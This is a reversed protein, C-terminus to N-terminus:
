LIMIHTPGLMGDEKQDVLFNGSGSEPNMGQRDAHGALRVRGCKITKAISCIKNLYGPDNNIFTFSDRYCTTAAWLTTLRQPEWM